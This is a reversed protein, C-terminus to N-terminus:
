SKRPSPNSAKSNGGEFERIHNAVTGLKPKACDEPWDALILAAQQERQLQAWDKSGRKRRWQERSISKHSPRGRHGPNAAHHGLFTRLAGDDLVFDLRGFLLEDLPVLRYSRPLQTSVDVRSPTAILGPGKPFGLAIEERVARM